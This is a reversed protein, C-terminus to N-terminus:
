NMAGGPFNGKHLLRQTSWARPARTSPEFTIKWALSFDWLYVLALGSLVLDFSRYPYGSGREGFSDNGPAELIIQLTEEVRSLRDVQSLKPVYRLPADRYGSISQNTILETWM